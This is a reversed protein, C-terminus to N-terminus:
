HDCVLPEETRWGIPDTADSRLALHAITGEWRLAYRGSSFPQVGDDAWYTRVWDVTFGDPQVIGVAGRGSLLFSWERAVIRCGQESREPLVQYGGGGFSAIATTPASLVVLMALVSGLAIRVARGRRPLPAIMAAVVIASIGVAIAVVELEWLNPFWDGIVLTVGMPSAGPEGYRAALQSWALVGGAVALALMLTGGSRLAIAWRRRAALAAQEDANVEDFVDAEVGAM